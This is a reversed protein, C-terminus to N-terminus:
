ADVGLWRLGASSVRNTFSASRLSLLAYPSVALGISARMGFGARFVTSLRVVVDVLGALLLLDFPLLAQAGLVDLRREGREDCVWEAALV